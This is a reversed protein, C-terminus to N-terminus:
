AEGASDMLALSLTRADNEASEDRSLMDFAPFYRECESLAIDILDEILDAGSGGNMGRLLSTHRFCPIKSEERIDFHGLWLNSNVATMTQAVRSLTSEPITLDYECCFQMASYAEEWLFTMKYAGYKGTVLVTLEDENIRDFHWDQASFIDEICDLPNSVDNFVDLEESLSSM